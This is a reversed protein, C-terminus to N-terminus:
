TNTLLLQTGFNDKRVKLDAAFELTHKRQVFFEKWTQRRQTRAPHSGRLMSESPPYQSAVSM